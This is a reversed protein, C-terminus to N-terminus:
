KETLADVAAQLDAIDSQAAGTRRAALLAREAANKARNSVLRLHEGASSGALKYRWVAAAIEEASPMDEDESPAPAAIAARFANMDFNPDSKRGTPAAVEKHGMWRIAYHEGLARCGRVYSEYQVSPWPTAGGPHEAEVGLAYYNAYASALHDHVEGAHNARGSAIVYWTGDRGLGLQSLPGPLGARGHAVVNLTPYDGQAAQPTATHHVVGGRIAIMEGGRTRWGDVEVVKLGASRLVDALELARM